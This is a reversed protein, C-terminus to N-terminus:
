MANCDVAVATMASHYVGDSTIYRPGNDGPPGAWGIALVDTLGYNTAYNQFGNGWIWVSGDSRLVDIEGDGGQLDGVDSLLAGSEVVVATPSQVPNTTTMTGATGDCNSGWCRVNSGDLACVTDGCYNLTPGATTLSTPNTLGLVKTPYQRTNTDGQGLQGYGNAGWCWVSNSSGAVIACAENSGLVASSVGTLPTSGDTTIAQAYGTLLTTGGNVLWTLDGWCWLKGDSTVACSDNDWTNSSITVANALQTAAATLVPTARYLAATATTTGNGLQGSTNGNSANTQWCKVGGGSLVACGHYPGEQVSVVGMLPTGTSADIITQPSNGNNEWILVGDTRLIYTSYLAAICSGGLGQSGSGDDTADDTASSEDGASGDGASSSSSTTADMGSSSM